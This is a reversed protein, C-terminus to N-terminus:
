GGPTAEVQGAAIALLAGALEVRQAEAPAEQSLEAMLAEIQPRDSARGIGSMARAACSRVMPEPHHLAELAITHAAKEQRRPAEGPALRQLHAGMAELALCRQERDRVQAADVALSLAAEGRGVLVLNAYTRVIDPGSGRAKRLMSDAREGDLQALYDLAELQTFLDGDSFASRFLAEGEPHGLQLLAVGAPLLLEEELLDRAEIIAPALAVRGTQGIAVFFQTELPIVGERLDEALAAEAEPDGAHLAALALPARDWPQELSRWARSLPDLAAEVGASALLFGARGRAYADVDEREIARLLLDQAVPEPLRLSLVEIVRRRVYPSPDYLGREAYASLESAPAYLCLLELSRMRLSVDLSAAGQELTDRPLAPLALHGTRAQELRTVGGRHHCALALTLFVFLLIRRSMLRKSVRLLVPNRM